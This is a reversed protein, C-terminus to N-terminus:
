AEVEVVVLDNDATKQKPTIGDAQFARIEVIRGVHGKGDPSVGAMVKDATTTSSSSKLDVAQGAVLNADAKILIRSGPGYCQVTDTDEASPASASEAAQFIGKTLDAVSTNSVPVILRGEADKTYIHGKTIALANKIIHRDVRAYQPYVLDGIGKQTLSSM